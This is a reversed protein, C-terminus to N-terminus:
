SGGMDIRSFTGVDGEDPGLEGAVCPGQGRVEGAQLLSAVLGDLGARLREGVARARALFAEDAIRDIAELAAVCALPNGSYTGGLGGPHAADMVEARGVVAAIPMGAGLSKATTLLDPVVGLQPAAWLQGTRGMGSQVEDAVLLAGSA